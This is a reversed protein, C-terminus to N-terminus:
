VDQLVLPRSSHGQARHQQGELRQQGRRLGVVRLVGHHRLLVAEGAGEEGGGGGVPGGGVGATLRLACLELALHAV